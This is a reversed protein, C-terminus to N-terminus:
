IQETGLLSKLKGFLAGEGDKEVWLDATRQSPFISYVLHTEINPGEWKEAKWDEPNVVTSWGHLESQNKPKRWYKTKQRNILHKEITQQVEGGFMLIVKPQLLGIQKGLYKICEKAETKFDKDLVFYKVLDTYFWKKYGNDELLKLIKHITHQHFGKSVFKKDNVGYWYKMRKVSENFDFDNWDGFNEGLKANKYLEDAYREWNKPSERHNKPVNSPRAPSKLVLLVEAPPEVDPPYGVYITQDRRTGLLEEFM